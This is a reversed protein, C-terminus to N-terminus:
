PKAVPKAAPAVQARLEQRVRGAGSRDALHARSTVRGVIQPSEDAARTVEHVQVLVATM